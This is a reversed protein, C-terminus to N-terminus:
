EEKNEFQTVKVGMYSIDKFTIKHPKIGKGTLHKYIYLLILENSKQDKAQYNANRVAGEFESVIEKEGFYCVSGKLMNTKVELVVNNFKFTKIM